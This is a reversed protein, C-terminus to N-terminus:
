SWKMKPLLFVQLLVRLTIIVSKRLTIIGNKRFQRKRKKKLNLNSNVYPASKNPNIPLDKPFHGIYM